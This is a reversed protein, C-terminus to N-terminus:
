KWRGEKLAWTLVKAYQESTVETDSMFFQHPFDWTKAVEVPNPNEPDMESLFKIDFHKCAPIKVVDNINKVCIMYMEVPSPDTDNSKLELKVYDKVKKASDFGEIEVGVYNEEPDVINNDPGESSSSSDGGCSVLGWFLMSAFIFYLFKKM